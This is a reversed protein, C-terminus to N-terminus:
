MRVSASSFPKTSAPSSFRSGSEGPTFSNEQLCFLAMAMSVTPARGM